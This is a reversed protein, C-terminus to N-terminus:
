VRKSLRAIWACAVLRARTVDEIQEVGILGQNIRLKAVLVEDGKRLRSRSGERWSAEGAMSPLSYAVAQNSFMRLSKWNM